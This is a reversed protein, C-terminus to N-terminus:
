RVIDMDDDFNCKALDTVKSYQRYGEMCCCMGCYYFLCEWDLCKPVDLITDGNKTTLKNNEKFSGAEEIQDAYTQTKSTFHFLRNTLIGKLRAASFPSIIYFLIIRLLDILGGVDGM